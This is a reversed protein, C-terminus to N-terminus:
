KNSEDNDKENDSEIEDNSNNDSEDSLSKELDDNILKAIKIKNPEYKCDKM